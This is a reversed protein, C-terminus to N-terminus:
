SMSAVVNTIILLLEVSAKIYYDQSKLFIRSALFGTMLTESWTQCLGLQVLESSSGLSSIKSKSLHSITNESHRPEFLICPM